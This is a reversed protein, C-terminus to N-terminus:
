FAVLTMKDASGMKSALDQVARQAVTLRSPVESQVYSVSAGEATGSGIIRAHPDDRILLKMSGSVDVVVILHAPLTEEGRNELLAGLKAINPRITVLAYLEERRGAMVAPQDVKWDLIFEEAM